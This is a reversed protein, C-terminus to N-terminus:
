RAAGRFTRRIAGLGGLEGLGGLPLIGFGDKAGKAPKGLKASTEKENGAPEARTKM